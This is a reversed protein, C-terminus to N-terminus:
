RKRSRSHTWVAIYFIAQRIFEAMQREAIATMFNRGVYNNVVNLASLRRWGPHDITM